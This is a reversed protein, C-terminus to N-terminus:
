INTDETEEEAVDTESRIVEEQVRNDSDEMVFRVGQYGSQDPLTRTSAPGQGV